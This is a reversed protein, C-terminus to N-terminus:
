FFWRRERSVAPKRKSRKSYDVAAFQLVFRERDDEAAKDDWRGGWFGVDCGWHSVSWDAQLIRKMDRPPPM